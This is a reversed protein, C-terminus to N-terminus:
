REERSDLSVAQSHPDRGPGGPIPQQPMMTGTRLSSSLCVIESSQAM